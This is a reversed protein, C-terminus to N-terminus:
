TKKAPFAHKKIKKNDVPIGCDPCDHESTFSKKVSRFIYIIALILLVGCAVTQADWKM